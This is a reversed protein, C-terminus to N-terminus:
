ILSGVKALHLCRLGRIRLALKRLLSGSRQSWYLCWPRPGQRRGLRRLLDRRRRLRIQRREGAGGQQSGPAHRSGIGRSARPQEDRRSSAIPGRRRRWEARRVTAAPGPATAANKLREIARLLLGNRAGKTWEETRRTTARWCRGTNEPRKEMRRETRRPRVLEWNRFSGVKRDAVMEDIRLESGGIRKVQDTIWKIM